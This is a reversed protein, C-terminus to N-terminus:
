DAVFWLVFVLTTHLDYRSIMGPLVASTIRLTATINIKLIDELEQKPTDVFYVPM